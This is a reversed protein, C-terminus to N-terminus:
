SLPIYNAHIIRAAIAEASEVALWEDFEPDYVHQVFVVICATIRRTVIHQMVQPLQVTVYAGHIPMKIAEPHMLHEQYLLSSKHISLTVTEHNDAEYTIHLNHKTERHSKYNYKMKYLNKMFM